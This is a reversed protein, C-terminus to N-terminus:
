IEGYSFLDGVGKLLSSTKRVGQGSATEESIKCSLSAVGSSWHGAHWSIDHALLFAAAATVTAFYIFSCSGFHIMLSCFSAATATALPLLSFHAPAFIYFIAGLFSIDRHCSRSHALALFLPSRPPLLWFFHAPAHLLLLVIYRGLFLCM